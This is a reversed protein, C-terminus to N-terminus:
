HLIGLLGSVALPVLLNDAGFPSFNEVLTAVLPITVISILHVQSTFGADTNAVTLSIIIISCLYFSFSGAVSKNHGFVRYHGKKVKQGVLAAMADAIGLHLMAALFIWANTGAIAMIIIASPFFLEGWSTRGINRLHLLSGSLRAFSVIVIFVVEAYIIMSYPMYFPWTAVVLAHSLHIVKRMAENSIKKTIRLYEAILVVLGGLLLSLFLPKIMLTITASFNVFGRIYIVEM